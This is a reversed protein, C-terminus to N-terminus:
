VNQQCMNQMNRAVKVFYFVAGGVFLDSRNKSENLGGFFRENGLDVVRIADDHVSVKMRVIGWEVFAGAEVYVLAGAVAVAVPDGPTARVALPVLAPVVPLGSLHPQAAAVRGGQMGTHTGAFLVHFRKHL